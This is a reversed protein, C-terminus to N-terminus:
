ASHCKRSEAPSDLSVDVAPFRLVNGFAELDADDRLSLREILSDGIQLLGDGEVQLTLIKRLETQRGVGSKEYGEFEIGGWTDGLSLLSEPLSTTVIRPLNPKKATELFPLWVLSFPSRRGAPFCVM